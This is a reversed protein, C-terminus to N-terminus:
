YTCRSRRESRYRLPSYTGDARVSEAPRAVGEQNPRGGGLDVDQDAPEPPTIVQEPPTIVQEPPTIVQEPPPSPFEVQSKFIDNIQKDTQNQDASTYQASDRVADIYRKSADDLNNYADSNEIYTYRGVNPYDDFPRYFGILESGEGVRPVSNGGSLDHNTLFVMAQEVSNIPGAFGYHKFAPSHAELAVKLEERAEPSEFHKGGEYIANQSRIRDIINQSAYNLNDYEPHFRYKARNSRVWNRPNFTPTEETDYQALFDLVQDLNNFYSASSAM